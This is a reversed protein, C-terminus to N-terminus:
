KRGPSNSLRFSSIYLVYARAVCKCLGIPSILRRYLWACKIAKSSAEPFLTISPFIELNFFSTDRILLVHNRATPQIMLLLLNGIVITYYISFILFDFVAFIARRLGQYPLGVSSTLSVQIM